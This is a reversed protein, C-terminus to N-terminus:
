CKSFTVSAIMMKRLYGFSQCKCFGAAASSTSNMIDVTFEPNSLYKQELQVITQESINDKDYSKLRTLVGPLRCEVVKHSLLPRIEFQTSSVQAGGLSVLVATQLRM